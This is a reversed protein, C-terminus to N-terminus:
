ISCRVRHISVLTNTGDSAKVEIRYVKGATLARLASLTVITGSATPTNTPFVTGTVDTEDTEDIAKVSPSSVSAATTANAFDVTRVIAEDTHQELVGEIVELEPM